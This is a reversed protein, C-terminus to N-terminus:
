TAAQVHLVACPTLTDFWDQSNMPSFPALATGPANTSGPRSQWLHVSVDFEYGSLSKATVYLGLAQDSALPVRVGDVVVTKIWPLWRQHYQQVVWPWDSRRLPCGIVGGHRKGEVMPELSLAIQLQEAFRHRTRADMELAHVSKRLENIAGEAQHLLVRAKQDDSEPSRVLYELATLLTQCGESGSAAINMEKLRTLLDRIEGIFFEATTSLASQVALEVDAETLDTEPAANAQPSSIEARVKQRAAKEQTAIARRNLPKPAADSIPGEIWRLLRRVSWAYVPDLDPSTSAGPANASSSTEAEQPSTAHERLRQATMRLLQISHVKTVAALAEQNQANTAPGFSTGKQIAEITAALIAENRTDRAILVLEMQSEVTSGIDQPGSNAQASATCAKLVSVLFDGQVSASLEVKGLAACAMTVAKGFGHAHAQKLLGFFDGREAQPRSFLTTILLTTEPAGEAFELPKSAADFANMLPALCSGWPRTIHIMQLRAAQTRLTGDLAADPVMQAMMQIYKISAQVETSALTGRFHNNMTDAIRAEREKRRADPLQLHALAMYLNFELAKDNAPLGRCIASLAPALADTLQAGPDRKMQNLFKGRAVAEAVPLDPTTLETCMAYSITWPADPQNSNYTLQAYM